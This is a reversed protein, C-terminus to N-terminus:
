KNTSSGGESGADAFKIGCGFPQVEAHILAHIAEDLYPHEIHEPDQSDDLPGHFVITGEKDLLYFEPTTGAGIKRAIMSKSDIGVPYKFGKKKAYAAQDKANEKAENSNLAVFPVSKGHHEVLANIREEYAVVYPCTYSTFFVVTGKIEEQALMKSVDVTHGSTLCEIKVPPFKQGLVRKFKGAEASLALVCVVLLGTAFLKKM